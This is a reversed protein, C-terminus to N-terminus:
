RYIVEDEPKNLYVADDEVRQINEPIFFVTRTLPNANVTVFGHRLLKGQLEEPLNDRTDFMDAVFQTVPNTDERGAAGTGASDHGEGFHVADVTGVKSDESDYVDMGEEINSLIANDREMNTMETDM